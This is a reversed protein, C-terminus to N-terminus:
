TSSRRQPGGVLTLLRAHNLPIATARVIPRIRITGGSAATSSISGRHRSDPRDHHWAWNGIPRQTRASACRIWWASPAASRQAHEPQRLLRLLVGGPRRGPAAAELRRSLAEINTKMPDHFPANNGIHDDKYGDNVYIQERPRAPGCATWRSTTTAGALPHNEGARALHAQVEPHTLDLSTGGWPTDYPKGDERKVFWHQRDKYEPDQHNRAFPLFWLGADSRSERDEAAVPAM